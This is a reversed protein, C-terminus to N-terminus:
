QTAKRLAFVKEQLLGPIHVFDEYEEYGEKRITVKYEGEQLNGAEFRGLTDTTFHLPQQADSANATQEIGGGQGTLSQHEPLFVMSVSAEAVPITTLESEVAKGILYRSPFLLMTYASTQNPETSIKFTFTQQIDGKKIQFHGRQRELFRSDDILLQQEFEGTKAQTTTRLEQGETDTFDDFIVSVGGVPKGTIDKVQGRVIVYHPLTIRVIRVTGDNVYVERTEHTYGPKKVSITYAGNPVDHTKCTGNQDTKLTEVLNGAADEVTVNVDRITSGSIDTVVISLFNIPLRIEGLNKREPSAPLKFVMPKRYVNKWDVSLQENGVEHVEVEVDFTGDSNSTIRTARSRLGSVELLPDRVGGGEGNIVLGTLRVYHNLKFTKTETVIGDSVFFVQSEDAKYGDKSILIKYSGDLLQQGEYDGNGKDKAPMEKGSELHKLLVTAGEIGYGLLDKVEIPVFNMPLTIRKLDITGPEPPLVFAVQKAHLGYEGLYSLRLNEKGPTNVLLEASFQGDQRFTVNEPVLHSLVEEIEVNVDTPLTQGKGDVVVGQLTVYYPLQFRTTVTKHSNGIPIEEQFAEKYGPKAVKITYVGNPLNQGEYLGSMVEQATFTKGQADLFIVTVGSLGRGSFDQVTVTAFNAPLTLIGVNHYGPVAPLRFDHALGFPKTQDKWSIEIHEPLETHETGTVLLEMEFSGDAQTLIQAEPDMLQSSLGTLSVNAGSVGSGKGNVVVGRVTVSHSLVFQQEPMQEGGQVSITELMEQYGEKRVTMTYVGDPIERTEYFGDGLSHLVFREENSAGSKELVIDVGALGEGLVNTVHVPVFNIPLRIENELTYQLPEKPLQFSLQKVYREQWVVRVRQVGAKKVLLTASFYGRADTTIHSKAQSTQPIEEHKAGMGKQEQRVLASNQVDFELVADAVGNGKGNTVMGNVTVYHSLTFVVEPAVEGACVSVTRTQSEYGNQSVMLLYHGDELYEGEYRGEDLNRVQHQPLRNGSREVTEVAEAPEGASTGELPAIWTISIEVDTIAHKSVDQVRIPIYNIPVRLTRLDQEGPSTQIDFAQTLAFHEEALRTYPPGSVVVTITEQDTGTVLLEERFRGNSDTSVRESGHISNTDGFFVEADAIGQQKGDRVIGSVTVIHPLTLSLNSVTEGGQVQVSAYTQQRYGEKALIVLYTGDPLEPSQYRNEPLEQGVFTTPALSSALSPAPSDQAQKLFTISAGSLSEGYVDRIDAVIYNIPLTVPSLQLDEPVTPLQVPVTMAYIDNWVIDLPEVGVDTVLAHITFSGDERTIVPDCEQVRRPDLVQVTAGNVGDQKGNLVIGSVTIYHQFKPVSIGIKYEGDKVVINEIALDQYNEKRIAIDYTGNPLEEGEYNGKDLDQAEIIQGTERHTLTVTAGPVGTAAISKVELSIFNIPLLTAEEPLTLVAPTPPLQIVFEKTYTGHEGIWQVTGTEKGIEQVLLPTEFIGDPGSFTKDPAHSKLSGFQITAAAVDQSKGNSVHGQVTVYHRLQYEARKVEGSLLRFDETRQEYQPKKVAVVYTGDPLGPQSEYEGAEGEVATFVKKENQHTFTVSAGSLPQGTVDHLQVHLFNIPLPLDFRQTGPDQRFELSFATSYEQDWSVVLQEPQPLRVLLTASFAGEADTIVVPAVSPSVSSQAEVPEETEPLTESLEDQEILLTSAQESFTINAGSVPEKKGNLAYGEVVVYHGLVVPKVTTHVGGDVTVDIYKGTEYGDKEFSFRYLGNPVYRAEYMGTEIEDLLFEQGRVPTNDSLTMRLRVGSLPRHYVDEVPVVVFNIPLHTEGINVSEEPHGPLTFGGSASYMADRWVAHWTEDGTGTVLLTTQFRGQYDTRCQELQESHNGGFTVEVNAVGEEKGNLMIGKVAAYHPIMIPGVAEKRTGPGVTVDAILINEKYGAKNILIDYQGDPLDPSEYVGDGREISPIETNDEALFIVHAGGLGRSAVDHVELSIFNIPLEYEGLALPEIETKPLAPLQFEAELEYRRTGDPSSWQVNITETAVQTVLLTARFGGDKGTFIPPPSTLQSYKQSFNVAAGVVRNDKGDVVTGSVTVYNYLTIPVDGVRGGAITLHREVDQYGDKIVRVVYDGDLLAVSEYTGTEVETIAIDSQGSQQHTLLVTDVRVPEGAIDSIKVQLFNIPLRVQQLDVRQPTEPLPFEIEHRYIQNYLNRWVINVRESGPDKVLLTAWFSGDSQTVIQGGQTVRVVGPPNEQMTRDPLFASHQNQFELVADSLPEDKGDIVKGQVTIYYPLALSLDITADADAISVEQSAPEYGTKEVTVVYDGAPLYDANRYGQQYSVVAQRVSTAKDLIRVTADSVSKGSVGEVRIDIGHFLAREALRTIHGGVVTTQAPEIAYGPKEFRVAYQGAALDAFIYAGEADTLLSQEIQSGEELGTLVVEVESAPNGSMDTVTGTIAGIPLAIRINQHNGENIAVMEEYQTSLRKGGIDYSVEITYRKGPLLDFTAQAVQEAARIPVNADKVLIQIQREKANQLLVGQSDTVEVFLRGLQIVERTIERSMLTVPYNNRLKQGQYTVDLVYEGADLGVTEISSGSTKPTKEKLRIVRETENRTYQSLRLALTNAPRPDILHGDANRFELSLRTLLQDPFVEAEETTVLNLIDVCGLQPIREDELIQLDSRLGFGILTLHLDNVECASRLVQIPDPSECKILDVLYLYLEKRGELDRLDDLSQRLALGVPAGGGVLPNSYLNLQLEFDERNALIPGPPIILETDACVDSGDIPFRHGFLRLGAYSTPAAQDLITRISSQMISVRRRKRMNLSADHIFLYNTPPSGSADTYTQAVSREAGARTDAFIGLSFGIM